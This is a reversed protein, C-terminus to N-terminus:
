CTSENHRWALKLLQKVRSITGVSYLDDGEPSDTKADKQTVLFILQNNTMSEELARISKERGVDFTLIMHPFVTLGRLPLLPLTQKKISKKKGSKKIDGKTKFERIGYQIDHITNWSIGINM